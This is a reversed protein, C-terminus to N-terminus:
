DDKLNEAPNVKAAKLSPYTGFITTFITTFILIGLFFNWEFYVNINFGTSNTAIISLISALFYAIFFGFFAGIFGLISSEVIFINRIDKNEGGLAKMTSIMNIKEFVNFYMINMVNIGGVLLAIGSIFSIILTLVGLISNFQEIAQKPSSIQIVKEKGRQNFKDLIIQKQTEIDVGDFFSVRVASYSTQGSVRVVDEFSMFISSDIFLDGKSKLIGIVRFGRNELNLVTGINIEKKGGFSNKAVKNGIVIVGVDNQKLQRGKEIEVGLDNQVNELYEGEIGITVISEKERGLEYFNDSFFIQPAIYKAGRVVKKIKFVDNDDLGGGSPPGNSASDVSRVLLVNLGLSSFQHNVANQLASSAFLFFSFVFIGIVIGSITLFVKKKNNFMGRLVILILDSIKLM